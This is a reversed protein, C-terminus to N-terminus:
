PDARHCAFLPILCFLIIQCPPSGICFCIAGSLLPDPGSSCPDRNYDDSRSWKASSSVLPALASAMGDPVHGRGLLSTEDGEAPPSGSQHSDRKEQWTTTWCAFAHAPGLGDQQGPAERPAPPADAASGECSGGERLYSSTKPPWSSSSAPLGPTQEWARVICGTFGAQLASAPPSFPPQKHPVPDPSTQRSQTSTSHRKSM